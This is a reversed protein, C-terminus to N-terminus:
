MLHCLPLTRRMTKCHAMRNLQWKNFMRRIIKSHTGRKIPSMQRPQTGEHHEDNNVGPAELADRKENDHISKDDPLADPLEDQMPDEFKPGPPLLEYPEFPLGARTSGEEHKGDPCEVSVNRSSKLFPPPPIPVLITLKYSLPPPTTNSPTRHLHNICFPNPARRCRGFHNVGRHDKTHDETPRPWVSPRV